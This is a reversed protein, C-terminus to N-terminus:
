EKIKKDYMETVGHMIILLSIFVISAIGSPTVRIAFTAEKSVENFYNAISNMGLTVGLIYFALVIFGSTIHAPFMKRSNNVCFRWFYLPVAIIMIVSLLMGILSTIYYSSSHNKLSSFLSIFLSIPSFDFAPSEVFSSIQQMYVSPMCILILLVFFCVFTALRCIASPLLKKNSKVLNINSAIISIILVAISVFLLIAGWGYSASATAEGVSVKGSNAYFNFMLYLGVLSIGLSPYILSFKKTKYIKYVGLATLSFVGLLAFIMLVFGIIFIAQSYSNDFKWNESKFWDGFGFSTSLEGVRVTYINGFVAVLSLVCAISLLVIAAIDFVSKSLPLREKSTKQKKVEETVEVAYKKNSYFLKNGCNPCYEIQGVNVQGCHPCRYKKEHELKAGCKSCFADNNQCENGCNKCKIM